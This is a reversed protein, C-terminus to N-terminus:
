PDVQDELGALFHPQDSGVARALARQQHADVAQELSRVFLVGVLGTAARRRWSWPGRGADRARWAQRLHMAQDVLLFLYRYLFGLQTVLVRPVGLKEFGKLLDPFRTTSALGILAAMGLVFRLLLSGATLWGGRVVLSEGVRVPTADFVPALAVLFAVFPSVLLTHKLVFGLPVGGIVLLVFPLVLWGPAPLAYRPLSILAMSYGVVALIKARPDLRHVPSDQYAFRDLYHHHM